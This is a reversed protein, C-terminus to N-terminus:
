LIRAGNKPRLAPSWDSFAQQRNQLFLEYEAMDLHAVNRSIVVVRFGYILSHLDVEARSVSELPNQSSHQIYCRGHDIDNRGIWQIINRADSTVRKRRV